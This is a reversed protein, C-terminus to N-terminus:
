IQLQIKFKCCRRTKKKLSRAEIMLMKNISSLLIVPDLDLSSMSILVEPVPTIVVLAEIIGVVSSVTSRPDNVLLNLVPYKPDPVTYM